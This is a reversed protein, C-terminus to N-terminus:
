VALTAPVNWNVTVQGAPVTTACVSTVTLHGPPGAGGTAPRALSRMPATADVAPSTAHRAISAPNALNLRLSAGFNIRTPRQFHQATYGGFEGRLINNKICLIGDICWGAGSPAGGFFHSYNCM